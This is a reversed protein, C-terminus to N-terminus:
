RGNKGETDTTVGTIELYGYDDEVFRLSPMSRAPVGAVLPMYGRSCRQGLQTELLVEMWGNEYPDDVMADYVRAIDGSLRLLSHFSITFPILITQYLM